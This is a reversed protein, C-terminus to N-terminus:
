SLLEFARVIRPLNDQRGEPADRSVPAKDTNIRMMGMNIEPGM